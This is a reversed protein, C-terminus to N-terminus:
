EAAERQPLRPEAVDEFTGNCGQLHAHSGTLREGRRVITDCYLPDYEIMLAKRGIKEAAILTSGSGGFCDRVVESRSKGTLECIAQLDQAEKESLRVTLTTQPKWSSREDKM